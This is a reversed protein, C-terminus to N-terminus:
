RTTSPSSRGPLVRRQRRQSRHRPHGIEGRRWGHEALRWRRQRCASAVAMEPRLQQCLASGASQFPPTAQKDLILDLEAVEVGPRGAMEEAWDIPEWGAPVPVEYWGAGVEESATALMRGNASPTAMKVLIHSPDHPATEDRAEGLEGTANTEEIAWAAPLPLLMAFALSAVAVRGISQKPSSTLRTM